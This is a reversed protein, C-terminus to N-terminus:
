REGEKRHQPVRSVKRVQAGRIKAPSSKKTVVVPSKGPQEKRGDEMKGSGETKRMISVEQIAV